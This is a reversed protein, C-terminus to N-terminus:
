WEPRQRQTPVGRRTGGGRPTGVPRGRSGPRGGARSVPRPRQQQQVRAIKRLKLEELVHDPPVVRRPNALNMKYNHLPFLIKIVLWERFDLGWTTVHKSSIAPFARVYDEAWWQPPHDRHGYRHQNVRTMYDRHRTQGVYGVATRRRLLLTPRRRRVIIVYVHGPRFLPYDYDRGRMRIYWAKIRALGVWAALVLVCGLVAVGLAVGFVTSSDV